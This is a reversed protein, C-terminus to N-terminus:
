RKREEGSTTRGSHRRQHPILQSTPIPISPAGNRSATSVSRYEWRRRSHSQPPQLPHRDMACHQLHKLSNIDVPYTNPRYTATSPPGYCPAKAISGAQPSRSFPSLQPRQVHITHTQRERERHQILRKTTSKVVMDVVVHYGPEESCVTGVEGWWYKVTNAVDKM